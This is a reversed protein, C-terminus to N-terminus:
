PDGACGPTSSVLVLKARAAKTKKKGMPAGEAAAKLTYSGDKIELELSVGTGLTIRSDGSTVELEGESVLLTVKM